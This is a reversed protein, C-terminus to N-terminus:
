GGPLASKPIHLSVRAGLPRGVQSVMLDAALSALLYAEARTVRHETTLYDVMYRTAKQAAEDLTAGSATVAYYADSEYHPEALAWEGEIVRVGVVFRAAVELGMGAVGGGGQAARAGGFSLLAGEVLVPFYATVGEVLHRDSLRGGDGAGDEPAAVEMVAAFPHLPIRTRDGFRAETAGSALDFTELFPQSFDDALAGLGPVVAAWGWDDVEIRHLTVALVDGPHAGEVFIPGSLPPSPAVSWVDDATAGPGVQGESARRTRVEIVAGSPVQLPPDQGSLTFGPEPAPARGAPDAAGSGCAALFLLSAAVLVAYSATPLAHGTGDPM